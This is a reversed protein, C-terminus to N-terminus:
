IGNKVFILVKINYLPLYYQVLHCNYMHDKCPALMSEDVGTSALPSVFVADGVGSSVAITIYVDPEM